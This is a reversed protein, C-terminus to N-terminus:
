LDRLRRCPICLCFDPVLASSADQFLSFFLWLRAAFEVLQDCFHIGMRVGISGICDVFVNVAVHQAFGALCTSCWFLERMACEAQRWCKCWLRRPMVGLPLYLQTSPCFWTSDSALNQGSDRGSARRTPTCNYRGLTAVLLALHTLPSLGRSQLSPQWLRRNGTACQFQKSRSPCNGLATRWPGRADAPNFLLGHTSGRVSRQAHHCAFFQLGCPRSASLDPWRYLQVSRRRLM